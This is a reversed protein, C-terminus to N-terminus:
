PLPLADPPLAPATFRQVMMIYPNREAEMSNATAPIALGYAMPQAGLPAIWQGVIRHTIKEVITILVREQMAAM